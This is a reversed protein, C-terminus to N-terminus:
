FIEGRECREGGRESERRSVHTHSLASESVGKARFDGFCLPDNTADSATAAALRGFILSAIYFYVDFFSM